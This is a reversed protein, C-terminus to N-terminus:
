TFRLDRREYLIVGAVVVVVGAILPAGLALFTPDHVLLNRDLFWWYPSVVRLPRIVEASAALGHILYGGVALASGAAVAPGRRGTAAGGLFAVALHLLALETVAITGVAIRSAPVEDLIDVPLAMLITAAYGVAAVFVVLGISAALRELAVRRRTVPATVVLQLTGDEEAGGVTRGGLGIAYVVLVIMLLTAFLRAQLFGAASTIPIAVDSGFLARVGEPLNRMIDEIEAQGRVSPYLGVITAVGAVTGIVWWRLGRLRDRVFRTAIVLGRASPVPVAVSTM